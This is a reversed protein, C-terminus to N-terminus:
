ICFDCLPQTDLWQLIAGTDGYERVTAFVAEIWGNNGLLWAAKYKNIEEPSPLRVGALPNDHFTEILLCIGFRLYVSLNTYTFGFVLQLVNWAGRTQTWVLVLGLCDEQQVNRKRGSVYDFPVIFSSEDFPTHSSFMPCFKELIKHFSECNFGM